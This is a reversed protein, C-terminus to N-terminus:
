LEADYEIYGNAGSDYLVAAQGLTATGSVNASICAVDRSCRTSFSNVTVITASTTYGRIGAGLTVSPVARMGTPLTRSVVYTGPGEAAGVMLHTAGGDDKGMKTYYRQCLALEEGYSRHEFPTAVKGLELQVNKVQVYDGVAIPVNASVNGDIGVQVSTVTLADPMTTTFSLSEWEGNGSHTADAAVWSGNHMMLRGNPSNSKMECSVTVTQGELLYLDEILQSIRVTSAGSAAAAKIEVYGGLDQITSAVGAANKWRDLMYVNHTMTSASTYDGRQSVRFSGNILLNRRGAGILNFQEQPTEARLMAEGAVGTPKRLDALEERVNIAPKSVKVTM